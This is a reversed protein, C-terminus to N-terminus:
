LLANVIREIILAAAAGAGASVATRTRTTGVIGYIGVVLRAFSAKSLVLGEIRAAADVAQLQDLPADGQQDTGQPTSQGALDFM